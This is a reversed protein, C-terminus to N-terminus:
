KTFKKLIVTFEKDPETPTNTNGPGLDQNKDGIRINVPEPALQYKGTGAKLKYKGSRAKM